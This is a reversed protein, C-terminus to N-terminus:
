EGEQPLYGYAEFAVALAPEGTWGDAAPPTTANGLQESSIEVNDVFLIPSGGEIDQLTRVLTETSATMLARVTIRRFGEEDAGPLPQLSRLVGGNTEIAEALRDQLSAAALADTDGALYYGEDRQRREVEALRSAYSPGRVALRDFHQILEQMELLRDEADSYAAVTPEVVHLYATALVTVLLLIAVLRGVFPTTLV